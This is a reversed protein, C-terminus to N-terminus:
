KTLRIKAIVNKDEILDEMKCDLALCLDCLTDIRAGEIPRALQEYNQIRRVPVGSLAALESQSLNKSVRIKQLKTIKLGKKARLSIAQKPAMGGKSM